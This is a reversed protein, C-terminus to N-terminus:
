IWYKWINCGSLVILYEWWSTAEWIWSLWTQLYSLVAPFYCTKVFIKHEQQTDISQKDNLFIHLISLKYETYELAYKILPIKKPKVMYPNRVLVPYNSISFKPLSLSESQPYLTSVRFGKFFIGLNIHSVTTTLLKLCLKWLRQSLMSLCPPM